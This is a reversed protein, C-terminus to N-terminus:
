KSEHTWCKTAFNFRGLSVLNNKKSVYRYIYQYVLEKLTGANTEYTLQNVQVSTEGGTSITSGHCPISM